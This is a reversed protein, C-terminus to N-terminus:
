PARENNVDYFLAQLRQVHLAFRNRLIIDAVTYEPQPYASVVFPLRHEFTPHLHLLERVM